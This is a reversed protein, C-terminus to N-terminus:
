LVECGTTRVRVGDKRYYHELTYRVRDGAKCKKVFEKKKVSICNSILGTDVNEFFKAAKGRDEEDIKLSFESQNKFGSSVIGVVTLTSM